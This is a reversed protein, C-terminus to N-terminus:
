AGVCSKGTKTLFSTMNKPRSYMKINRKTYIIQVGMSHKNLFSSSYYNSGSM